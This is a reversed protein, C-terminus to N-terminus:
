PNSSDHQVTRIAGLGHKFSDAKNKSLILLEGAAVGERRM